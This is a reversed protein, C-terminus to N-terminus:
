QRRSSLAGPSIQLPILYKNQTRALLGVSGKTLSSLVEKNPPNEVSESHAFDM